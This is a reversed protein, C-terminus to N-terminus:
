LLEIFFEIARRNDEESNITRCYLGEKKRVDALIRKIGIIFKNERIM